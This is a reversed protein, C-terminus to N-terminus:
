RRRRHTCPGKNPLNGAISTWSHRPRQELLYPKFDGPCGDFAAYVTSAGHSSPVVRAGPDYRARGSTTSRQWTQGGNESLFLGTALASGSNGEKLPSQRRSSRASSRRRRTAAVADISWVRDM